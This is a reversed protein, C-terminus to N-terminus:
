WYGQCSCVGNKMKHFGYCDRITIDRDMNKSIFKCQSHCDPCLKLNKGLFLPTRPSTSLLGFALALEESHNCLEHEEEVGHFVLKSDVTYGEAKLQKRLREVEAYAKERKPHSDDNVSFKHVKGMIEILTYGQQKKIGKDRMRSIVRVVNDNMGAAAYTNALIVYLMTNAPDQEIAQEAVRKCREVDPQNLCARLLVMWSMANAKFPMSSLTEEAKDLKGARGLVNILSNYNDLDPDIGHDKTMADFLCSVEELLGAYSCAWLLSAFTAKDPKVGEEQMKVFLQLADIGSGHQAYAAFIANWLSSNRESIKDFVGRASELSGCHAYMNVLATGVTSDSKLTSGKIRAHIRRGETMAAQRACASLINIFTARNPECMKDLMRRADELCGCESYMNVIANGVTIDSRYGSGVLCAHVRKGTVTDARTACADLVAVHTAKDPVVGEQQMLEYLVVAQQARGHQFCISMMTLWTAANWRPIIDFVMQAEELRYCKGYLTVLASGVVESVFRGAIICAHMQKGTSLAVQSSCAKLVALFSLMDPIMGSQLMDAFLCFIDNGQKSQSYLSLISNWLVTTQKSTKEFAMRADELTGCRGYMKVLTTEVDAESTFGQGMVRAHMQRGTSLDAQSMCADLIHVYTARDPTCGEEQMHEFLDFTNKGLGLQAYVAIIANWLVTDQLSFKTFLKLANELSGCRGYMNLLAARAAVSSELGRAIIRGHIGEGLALYDQNVCLGLIIVFTAEDPSVGEQLMQNFKQLADNGQGHQAYAAILTNWSDPRRKNCMVDFISQAEEISGCNSYMSILSANIADNTKIIIDVVLAHVLRAEVLDAQESCASLVNLITNNSPMVREEHMQLFLPPVNKAQGNTAYAAIMTNWLATDRKSIQDFIYRADDLSGCRSYMNVLSTLVIMDTSFHSGTICAHLHKGEALDTLSACASLIIAFTSRDPMVAEMRLQAFLQISERAKGNFTHAKIMSTWSLPEWEPMAAFLALATEFAGCNCYMQLLLNCLPMDHKYGDKIIHNHVRIGGSLSKAIKCRQLLLYYTSQDVHIGPQELLELTETLSKSEWDEMHNQNGDVFSPIATSSFSSPCLAMFPCKYQIRTGKTAYLSEEFHM